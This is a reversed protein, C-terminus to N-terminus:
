LNPFPEIMETKPKSTLIPFRSIDLFKYEIQNQNLEPNETIESLISLFM